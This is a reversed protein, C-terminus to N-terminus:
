KELMDILKENFVCSLEEVLAKEKDTAKELEKKTPDLIKINLEKGDNKEEVKLTLKLM